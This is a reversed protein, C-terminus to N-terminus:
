HTLVGDVLLDEYDEDQSYEKPMKPFKIKDDWLEIMKKYKAQTFDLCKDDKVFKLSSSNKKKNTKEVDLCSVRKKVTKM